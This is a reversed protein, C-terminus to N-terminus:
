LEFAYTASSYPYSQSCQLLKLMINAQLFVRSFRLRQQPIDLGVVTKTLLLHLM